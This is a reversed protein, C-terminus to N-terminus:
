DTWSRPRSSWTSEPATPSHLLVERRGADIGLFAEDLLLVRLRADTQDYLLSAVALILLYAPVAQEGGSGFRLRHRTLDSPGGEARSTVQLVYDFWRRYDLIEPVERDRAQRLDDMRAQFFERLEERLAPQLVSRERLLELLRDFEPRPKVSFQFRSTGFRLDAALRSVGRVTERLTHTQNQLRRVLGAMVVRELLDRTKEDLAQRLARVQDEREAYIEEVPRGAQDRVELAQESLRLAYRQWLLEHRVGDSGSLAEFARARASLAEQVLDPVNEPRIQHGRMVRFVYDDIDARHRADSVLPLLADKRRETERAADELVARAQQLSESQAAADQQRRGLEARADGQLGRAAALDDELRQVRSRLDALGKEALAAAIEQHRRRREQRRASEGALREIARELAAERSSLVEAAHRAERAMGPLAGPACAALEESGRLCIAAVERQAAAEGAAEAALESHRAAEAHLRTEEALAAKRRAEAGLFRPPGPDIRSEAGSEYINGDAWIVRECEPRPEGAQIMRVDGASRLLYAQALAATEGFHAPALTQPLTGPEPLGRAAALETSDLVEIGGGHRLIEARVRPQEEAPAVIAGLVRPGLVCEIAAGVQEPVGPALEFFRYLPEARFGNEELRALLEPYGTL